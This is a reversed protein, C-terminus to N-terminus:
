YQNAGAVKTELNSYWFLKRSSFEGRIILM